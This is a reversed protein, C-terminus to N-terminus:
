TRATLLSRPRRWVTSGAGFKKSSIQLFKRFNKCGPGTNRVIEVTLVEQVSARLGKSELAGSGRDLTSVDEQLGSGHGM